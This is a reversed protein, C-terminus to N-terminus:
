PHKPESLIASIATPVDAMIFDPREIKGDIKSLESQGYGTLVLITKGVGARQAAEMDTLSDGIFSSKSLDLGLDNAAELIMGPKPKRCNCDQRYPPQGVDPHHPCYYIADLHAGEIALQAAMEQHLQSLGDEDILGRAVVSQNTILIAPIQADNLARIARGVGPAVLLYEPQYLHDKLELVVGDRDLFVATKRQM